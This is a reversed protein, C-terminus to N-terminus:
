SGPSCSVSKQYAVLDINLATAIKRIATAIHHEVTRPSINLVEAVEKYRLGDEKVLKYVIRCKPPLEYIVKNVAQLMESVMMLEEPSPAFENCIVDFDDSGALVKKDGQRNIYNLSHNKVAVYLYVRLNNIGGMQERNNWLKVFVDEVVEEAVEKLKVMSVSFRFLGTYFLRFLQQFAVEDDCLSVKQQLLFIQEATM